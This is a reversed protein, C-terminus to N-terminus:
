CRSNMNAFLVPAFSGRSRTGETRQWEGHAKGSRMRASGLVPDTRSRLRCTYLTLAPSGCTLFASIGVDFPMGLIVIDALSDPEDLCRAHPTRAFTTIGSFSLDPSGGYKSATLVRGPDASVFESFQQLHPASSVGWAESSSVADHGAHAAVVGLATAALIASRMNTAATRPAPLLLERRPLM